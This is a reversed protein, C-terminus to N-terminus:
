SLVSRDCDVDDCLWCELWNLMVPVTWPPMGIMEPDLVVPNVECPDCDSDAVSLMLCARDVVCFADDRDRRSCLTVIEVVVTVPVDDVEVRTRFFGPRSGM